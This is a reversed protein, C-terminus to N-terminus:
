KTDKSKAYVAIIAMITESHYRIYFKLFAGYSIFVIVGSGFQFLLAYKWSVIIFLHYSVIWTAVLCVFTMSRLFGYIAVYNRLSYIHAPATELAYHLSLKEIDYHSPHNEELIAIDLKVRICLNAFASSAADCLMKDFPKFYNRNLGLLKGFILEIWSCPIMFIFILIKILFTFFFTYWKIDKEMKFYNDVKSFLLFKMPHGHLWVAHKELTSASLFSVLHGIYYGLLILPIAGQWKISNYRAILWEISVESHNHHYVITIDVLALMALGPVLYGIIDYPTFQPAKPEM